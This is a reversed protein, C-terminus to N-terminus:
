RGAFPFIEQRQAAEDAPQKWFLVKHFAMAPQVQDAANQQSGKGRGFDNDNEDCLHTFSLRVEAYPGAPKVSSARIAPFLLAVSRSVPHTPRSFKRFRDSVVPFGRTAAANFRSRSVSLGIFFGQNKLKKTLVPPSLPIRVGSVTKGTYRNLLGAGEAM